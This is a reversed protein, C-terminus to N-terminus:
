KKVQHVQVGKEILAEIIDLPAKEDTILHTIKDIECTRFSSNCGIKTHDALIYTTGRVRRIMLENLSVENANETTIGGEPSIGTCGIFAKKAFVKQLNREAFEGVMAEKPYRLEGGTLIVSVGQPHEANVARGNNTIVTVNNKEVYQLLELANTSTNIFLSDGDEVLTAAYKAILTRYLQVENEQNNISDKANIVAGGYFRILKEQDELLQLDRRITIPSVRFIEALEEVHVKPSKQMIELISNRRKEVFTRERKM